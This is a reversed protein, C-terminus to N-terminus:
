RLTPAFSVPQAKAAPMLWPKHDLKPALRAGKEPEIVVRYYTEGQAEAKVVKAGPHLKALRGAMEPGKFSGLVMLYRGEYAARVADRRAQADDSRVVAAVDPKPLPLAALVRAPAAVPAPPVLATMVLKGAMPETATAPKSPETLAATVVPPAALPATVIAAKSPAVLAATLPPVTEVKAVGPLVKAVDALEIPLVMPDGHEAIPRMPGVPLVGAAQVVRATGDDRDFTGRMPRAAAVQPETGWDTCVELNQAMRLLKCDQDAAVSLVHDSVTRGSALLSIGDLAHSAIGVAPPLVACGGLLTVAMLPVLRRM